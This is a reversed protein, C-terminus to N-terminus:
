NNLVRSDFRHFFSIIAKNRYKRNIIIEKIINADSQIENERM